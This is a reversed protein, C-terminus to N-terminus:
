EGLVEKGLKIVFEYADTKGDLYNFKQKLVSYTEKLEALERNKRELDKQVRDLEKNMIIIDHELRKYEAEWNRETDYKEVDIMEKGM